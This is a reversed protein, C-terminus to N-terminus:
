DPYDEGLMHRRQMEEIQLHRNFVLSFHCTCQPCEFYKKRTEDNIGTVAEQGCSPCSVIKITFKRNCKSCRFIKDEVVEVNTLEECFPCSITM